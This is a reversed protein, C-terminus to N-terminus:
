FVSCSKNSIRSSFFISVTEKRQGLTLFVNEENVICPIESVCESQEQFKLLIPFSLCTWVQSVRQSCILSCILLHRAHWTHIFQNLIYM